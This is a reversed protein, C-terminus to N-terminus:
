STTNVRVYDGQERPPMVAWYFDDVTILLAGNHIASAPLVSYSRPITNPRLKLRPLRFTSNLACPGSQDLWRLGVYHVGRFDRFFAECKAFYLRGQGNDEEVEVKVFDNTPRGQFSKKARLTTLVLRKPDNPLTQRDVMTMKMASSYEVPAQWNLVGSAIDRDIAMALARRSDADHPRTQEKRRRKGTRHKNKRWKGGALRAAHVTGVLTPPTAPTRHMPGSAVQNKAISGFGDEDMHVGVKGLHLMDRLM